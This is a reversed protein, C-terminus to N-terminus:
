SSASNGSYTQCVPEPVCDLMFTLSTMEFRQMWSTPPTSPACSGIWGFSWTLMPCDEFSVKGVAICIAAYLIAVSCVIGESRRSRSAISFFDRSHSLITLIPRM